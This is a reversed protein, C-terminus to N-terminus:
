HPSRERRRDGRCTADEVTPEDDRTNGLPDSRGCALWGAGDSNDIVYLRDNPRVRAIDVAQSLHTNV